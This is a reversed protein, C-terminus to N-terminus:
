PRLTQLSVSRTAEGRTACADVLSQDLLTALLSRQVVDEAPQAIARRVLPVRRRNSRRAFM